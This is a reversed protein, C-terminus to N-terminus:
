ITALHRIARMLPEFGISMKGFYNKPPVTVKGILIVISNSAKELSAKPSTFFKVCDSSIIMTVTKHRGSEISNDIGDILRQSRHEKIPRPCVTQSHGSLRKRAM